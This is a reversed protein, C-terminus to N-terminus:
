PPAPPLFRSWAEAERSRGLTKCLSVLRRIAGPPGTQPNRVALLADRLADPLETRAARLAQSQRRHSEAQRPDGVREALGALQDHSEADGPQHKLAQAFAEAAGRWDERCVCALGRYKWIEGDQDADPPLHALSAALGKLDGQALLIALRDRWVRLNAPQANLCALVDRTAAASQGLAQEARALARRAEWDNPTAAVFRRLTAVADGGPAEHELHLRLLRALLSPHASPDAREYLEWLVAQAEEDRGELQYLGILESAAAMLTDAPIRHLPDDVLCAQWAAEAGRARDAKLYARGELLLAEGKTPWWLPVRHWQRASGLFDGRAALVRSLLARAEGHNPSQRLWRRLEAEAEDLRKQNVWGSIAGLSELPRSEWLWWANLGILGLVLIWFTLRGAWARRRDHLPPPASNAAASIEVQSSM